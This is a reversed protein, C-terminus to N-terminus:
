RRGCCASGDTAKRIGRFDSGRDPATDKSHHCRDSYSEDQWSLRSQEMSDATCGLGSWREFKERHSLRHRYVDGSDFTFEFTAVAITSKPHRDDPPLLSLLKLQLM